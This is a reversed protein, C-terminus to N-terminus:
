KLDRSFPSRPHRGKPYNEQVADRLILDDLKKRLSTLSRLVRHTFRPELTSVAREILAVNTKIEQVPTPPPEKKEEPKEDEQKDGTKKKDDAPKMEVDAM